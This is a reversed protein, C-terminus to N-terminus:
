GRAFFMRDLHNLDKSANMVLITEAEIFPASLPMEMLLYEPSVGLILDSESAFIENVSDYLHYEFKLGTNKGVEELFSIAIGRIEGKSDTYSLPAAGNSSAVKLIREQQIYNKEAETLQFDAQAFEPLGTLLILMVFLVVRYKKLYKTVSEIDERYVINEIGGEIKYSAWTKKM